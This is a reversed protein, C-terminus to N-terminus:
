CIDKKSSQLSWSPLSWTQRRDKGIDLATGPFCYNGLLYKHKALKWVNLLNRNLVQETGTEQCSFFTPCISIFRILSNEDVLPSQM